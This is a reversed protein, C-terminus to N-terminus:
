VGIYSTLRCTGNGMKGVVFSDVSEVVSLKVMLMLRYIRNETGDCPTGMRFDSLFEGKPM